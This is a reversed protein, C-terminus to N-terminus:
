AGHSLEAMRALRRACGGGHLAQRALRVGAVLSPARDTIWALTGANLAIADAHVPDGKGELIGTLWAANEDPGGGALAHIPAPEVGASEPTITLHRIAGDKVLVASTPGHLAIEDLGSGHVVLAVTRGLLQLTRAATECLAPDYIGMLQWPPRAANAIPGVLNFVTRVGLAKRVPAAHRVGPHYQPAYIFCIGAEDLCRRGIDPSPDLRVGLRELVDASGCRSSVSRNGTKAIPIGLEAAVFAAATSINVTGTGDGGTGCCDAYNYAPRPFPVASALLAEVAGAMVEPTEGRTKLAALIGAMEIESYEGAVFRTFTASSEERSLTRRSLVELVDSARM